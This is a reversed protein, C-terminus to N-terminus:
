YVFNSYTAETHMAGTGKISIGLAKLGLESVDADYSYTMKELKGDKIIAEVKINGYTVDVNNVTVVSVYAKIEADIESQTVLDDTFRNLSTSGDKQPSTANALTFTYKGDEVKLDKLDSAKLSTAKLKYSDGHYGICEAADKGKEVKAEKTGIGLFGGVVSDLNANEDAMHIVKNLTDTANGVDIPKTYASTRTWDYGATAATATAANIAKAAEEAEDTAPAAADDSSGASGSSSGDDWSQASGANVSAAYQSALEAQKAAAEDNADGAKKVAFSTSAGVLVLALVIAWFRTWGNSRRIKKEAIEEPTLVEKAM